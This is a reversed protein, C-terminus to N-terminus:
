KRNIPEKQIIRTLTDSLVDNISIVEIKPHSQKPAITDSVFLKTLKMDTLREYAKGSLVAHTLCAYVNKAGADILKDVGLSLTGLTDGIDDVLIVNKDKVDGILTMSSVQNAIIRKKDFVVM